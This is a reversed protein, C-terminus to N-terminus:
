SSLQKIKRSLNWECKKIFELKDNGNSRSKFEKKLNNIIDNIENLSLYNLFFSKLDKLSTFTFTPKRNNILTM